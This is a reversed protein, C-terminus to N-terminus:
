KVFNAALILSLCVLKNSDSIINQISVFMYIYIAFALVKWRNAVSLKTPVKM